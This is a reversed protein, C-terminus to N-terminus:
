LHAQSPCAKRVFTGRWQPFKQKKVNVGLRMFICPTAIAFHSTSFSNEPSNQTLRGTLLLWYGFNLSLLALITQLYLAFQPLSAISLLLCYICPLSKDTGLYQVGNLLQLIEDIPTNHKIKKM